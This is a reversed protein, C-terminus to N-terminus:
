APIETKIREGFANVSLKINKGDYSFYQEYGDEGKPATWENNAGTGMPYISDTENDYVADQRNSITYIFSILKGDKYNVVAREIDTQFAYQDSGLPIFEFFETVKGDTKEVMRLGGSTLDYVGNIEYPQQNHTKIASLTYDHAKNRIAKADSMGIMEAVSEVAGLMAEDECFQATLAISISGFMLSIVNETNQPDGDPHANNNKALAQDVLTNMSKTINQMLDFAGRYDSTSTSVNTADSWQEQVQAKADMLEELEAQLKVDTIIGKTAEVFTVFRGNLISVNYGSENVMDAYVKADNPTAFEMILSQKGDKSFNFGDVLNVAFEKQIEVMDFIEYGSAIAKQKIEDLSAITGEDLIPVDTSAEQGSETQGTKGQDSADSSVPASIEREKKSGNKGGCGTFCSAFLSLALLVILAKKM